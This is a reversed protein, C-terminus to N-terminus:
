GIIKISLTNKSKVVDTINLDYKVFLEVINEENINIRLDQCFVEMDLLGYMTEYKSRHSIGREFIFKSNNSGFRKMIIKKDFIKLTTTSGEMGTLESEDYVLYHVNNKIYYKGETALEIINKDEGEVEQTGKINIKIQSM